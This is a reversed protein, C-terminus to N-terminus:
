NGFIWGIMFALGPSNTLGFRMEMFFRGPNMSSIQRTLGGQFYFGIESHDKGFKPSYFIPGAGAGLYPTWAGFESRFRYDLDMTFATTTINDGVGVELNPVFMVHPAIDGLDLQGGFRFQDPESAFGIRPGVGRVGTSRAETQVALFCVAVVILTGLFTKM